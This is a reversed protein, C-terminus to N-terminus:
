SLFPTLLQVIKQQIEVDEIHRSRNNQRPRINIMSDFEINDPFPSDIYINFGWLTEQQCCEQLLLLEADAHLEAGLALKGTQIDIVGKIMDGFHQNALAELESSSLRHSVLMIDSM